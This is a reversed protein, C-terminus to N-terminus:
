RKDAGAEAITAQRSGAWLNGNALTFAGILVLSSMKM